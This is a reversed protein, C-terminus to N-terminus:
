AERMFIEMGAGDLQMPTLNDGSIWTLELSDETVAAEFTGSLYHSGDTSSVGIEMQGDVISWFGFYEYKEGIGDLYWYYAEGNDWLELHISADSGAFYMGAYKDADFPLFYFWGGETGFLLPSGEAHELVLHWGEFDWNFSNTFAYHGSADGVAGGFMDFHLQGDDSWSGSFIEYCESEPPGYKYEASGDSNITLIMLVEEGNVLNERTYWTGTYIADAGDATLDLLNEAEMSLVGEALEMGGHEMSLRPCYDLQAKTNELSLHLNPFIESINGKLLVAGSTRHLEQGKEDTYTTENMVNESVVLEANPDTAVAAYVEYGDQRVYDQETISELFPFEELLGSEEIRTWLGGFEDEDSIGLFVVALDARQKKAEMRIESLADPKEPKQTTEPKQMTEPKQTTETETPTETPTEVPADVGCATLLLMMALMIALIKKM